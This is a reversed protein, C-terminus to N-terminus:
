LIAKVKFYGDKMEPAQSFIADHNGAEIAVDERQVNVLGTVQSVEELGTVDVKKLEDVYELVLSLDKQFKEVEKESLEIRALQAIKIVEEKSLM